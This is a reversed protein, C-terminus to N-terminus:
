ESTEGKAEEEVACMVIPEIPTAPSAHGLQVYSLQQLDHHVAVRSGGYARGVCFADDDGEHLDHEILLLLAYADPPLADIAGDLIDDLNLQHTYVGGEGEGARVRVRTASDGHALAVHRAAAPAARSKTPRPADWATLRFPTPLRRVPLPHYFAALYEVVDDTRPPATRADPDPAAADLLPSRAWARIAADGADILPPAAVYITRRDPTVPNRDKEHKWARFSQPPYAPDLALADDPLVLPAPFTGPPPPKAAADKPVRGSPTTAALRKQATPHTYGALAAHASPITLLVPHTCQSAGPAPM